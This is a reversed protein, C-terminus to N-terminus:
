DDDFGHEVLFGNVDIDDIAVFGSGVDTGEDFIIDIASVQVNGFGPWPPDTPFQAFADSDRFRVRTFTGPKDPAAVHTGYVCGFFYLFGATTTVNFRPAGAGCHGGGFVDFGLEDLRLNKVGDVTAIAAANTATPLIKAMVLAPDSNGRGTFPVWRSIIAGSNNPDFVLPTVRFRPHAM